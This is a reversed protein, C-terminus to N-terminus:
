ALGNATFGQGVIQWTGNYARLSVGGGRFAPFTIVTKLAVGAAIIAGPCTITHAFATDSWIQLALNDDIGVRPAALTIANVQGTKVIYNGPVQPNIVDTTGSLEIPSTQFPDTDNLDAQAGADYAGGTSRAGIGRPGQIINPARVTQIQTM